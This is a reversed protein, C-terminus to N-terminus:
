MSGLADSSYQASLGVVPEHDKGVLHTPREELRACFASGEGEGCRKALCFLTLLRRRSIRVVRFIVVFVRVRLAVLQGLPDSLVDLVRIRVECGIDRDSVRLAEQAGHSLWELLTGLRQPADFLHPHEFARDAAM